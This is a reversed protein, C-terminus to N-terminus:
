CRHTCYSFLGVLRYVCGSGYSHHVIRSVQAYVAQNAAIRLVCAEGVNSESPLFEVFTGINNGELPTYIASSARLM